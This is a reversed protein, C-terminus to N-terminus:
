LPTKVPECENCTSWIVKVLQSKGILLSASVDLGAGGAGCDLLRSVAPTWHSGLQFANCGYGWPGISIGAGYTGFLGNFNEPYIDPLYDELTMAGSTANALPMWKFGAGVGGSEAKVLVRARRGKVCQSELDFVFLGVAGLAGITGPLVKGTWRVLGHRDIWQLPTGGVYGYTSPGGELGIPDSQVYRGTAPEYDRFYNYNLGSASDYRQGPFRMDFVFAIGDADPDPNPQDAGFAEGTLPWTWVAKERIPDIVVRPSGLHDPEIYYLRDNAATEDKVILGVPLDDLWIVEQVRAGNTDYDGLWRGAEDYVSYTHTTGVWRRVREGKGNYRYNMTAVGNAKTQSLRNTADYVFERATGGISTTNGTADYWRNISGVRSLRHSTAPYTYATAAGGAMKSTRNGTADYGYAHLLADTAGDKSETVRGLADYGFRRLPPETQDGTRLVALNGVEDFEFGLSLGDPGVDQVIGPQYNRDLTRRLARGDGYRLESVPGFPYYTVSSLLVERAAGPRTVAIGSAQGNVNYVYDVRLGSPYIMWLPKGALDHGYRTTFARGNTTQVKRTLNGFSDYCYATSGSADVMRALRGAHFREDGDCASSPTDYHYTVDHTSDAYTIATLRNLADYHYTSTVGRADTQTKRNGAGDYTYTTTGTDPSALQTLDGLGNYTYTTVLGKPDIVRTLNDLADYEFKTEAKIGAVDQLTRVLRNLPDYDNDTVVGKADTAKDLNGNADYTFGTPREYADKATQLQGLQNYVRSLTRLLQGDADLTEEKIRNGANDLTYHIKNGLNDSIDTLRHAADYAYATFSGDPQTVKQVLGTPWYEIRTIADDAESADNAGRVKRATLWGRPHYEFNTVVGNADKVSLVRGAGDYRLTETVHGLANTVKWLDGKRYPCTTPASACDPHDSPYYTYTTVDSVDTCPGDISTLLGVLPCTGADVGAQDCYAYRVSRATDSALDVHASELVQGATNYTYRLESGGGNRRRVLRNTQLERAEEVVRQSATGFAEVTTKVRLSVGDVAHESYQYRTETGRRDVTRILRRRFDSSAPAYEYTQTGSADTSAVPKRYEQGGTYEFLTTMGNSDTFGARGDPYRDVHGVLLGGRRTSVASGNSDYVYETSGNGGEGEIATLHDFFSTNDYRYQRSTGDPFIVATLRGHEDYMYEALIAGGSSLRKIRSRESPSPGEYAFELSRGGSHDIRSLRDFQDYILALRTGDRREIQEARGGSFVIVDGNHYLVYKNDKLVFRSNAGDISEYGGAVSRFPLLSGDALQVSYDSRGFFLRFNFNHTWHAGLGSQVVPAVSHYTREFAIWPLTVDREVQKKDGTAVGIPNGKYDCPDCLTHNM